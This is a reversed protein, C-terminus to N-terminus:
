ERGRTDVTLWADCYTELTVTALSNKWVDAQITFLQEARHEAGGVTWVGPCRVHSDVVFDGQFNDVQEILRSLASRAAETGEGVPASAEVLRIDRAAASPRVTVSVEAVPVAVGVGALVSWVEAALEIARSSHIRGDVPAVEWTWDGIPATTIM